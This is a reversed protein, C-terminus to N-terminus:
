SSELARITLGKEKAVQKAQDETLEKDTASVYGFSLYGNPSLSWARKQAVVEEQKKGKSLTGAM